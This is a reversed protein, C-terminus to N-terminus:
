NMELYGDRILYLPLVWGNCCVINGTKWVAEPREYL